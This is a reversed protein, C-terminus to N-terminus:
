KKRSEISFPITLEKNQKKINSNHLCMMKCHYLETIKNKGKEHLLTKNIKASNTTGKKRGFTRSSSSSTSSTNNNDQYVGPPPPCSRHKIAVKYSRIVRLKLANITLWKLGVSHIKDLVKKYKNHHLRGQKKKNSNLKRQVLKDVYVSLAEQKTLNTLKLFKTASKSCSNNNRKSRSKTTM